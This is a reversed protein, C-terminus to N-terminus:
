HEDSMATHGAGAAGARSVSPRISCLTASTHTSSPLDPTGAGHYAIDGHDDTAGTAQPENDDLEWSRPNRKSSISM